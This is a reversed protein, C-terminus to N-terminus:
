RYRTRGRVSLSAMLGEPKVKKGAPLSKDRPGPVRRRRRAKVMRPQSVTVPVAPPAPHAKGNRNERSPHRQRPRNRGPAKAQKYRTKHHNPNTQHPSPPTPQHPNPTAQPPSEGPPQSTQNTGPKTDSGRATHAHHSQHGPQMTPTASPPRPNVMVPVPGHVPAHGTGNVPLRLRCPYVTVPVLACVPVPVPRFFQQRLVGFRSQEDDAAGRPGGGAPMVLGSKGVSPGLSSGGGAPMVVTVWGSFAGSRNVAARLADCVRTCVRLLQGACVGLAVWYLCQYLGFRGGGLGGGAPM